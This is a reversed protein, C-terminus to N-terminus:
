QCDTTSTAKAELSFDVFVRLLVTTRTEGEEDGMNLHQQSSLSLLLFLIPLLCGQCFQRFCNKSEALSVFHHCNNFAFIEKTQFCSIFAFKASRWCEIIIGTLPKAKTSDSDNLKHPLTVKWLATRALTDGSSRCPQAKMIFWRALSRSLLHMSELDEMIGPSSHGPGPAAILLPKSGYM